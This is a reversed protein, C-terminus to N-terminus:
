AEGVRRRFRMNLLEVTLSFGMAFYVYRKDLEQHLGEAMLLVGILLLFSLALIKMSPHTNIFNGVPQAFLWMVAVAMVIAVAMIEVHDVIGVATIVSDLSFVIDLVMIQAVVGVMGNGWGRVEEEAVGETKRYIESTSKAVLFAGGTLLILNRGSIAIGAVSFLPTTLSMVWSLTFLLALRTGMAGLLGLRYARPQDEPPLRETLIAIFVINDIGLVIELAALSALAIWADVTSFLELM